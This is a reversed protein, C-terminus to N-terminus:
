RSSHGERMGGQTPLHWSWQLLRDNSTDESFITRHLDPGRLEPLHGPLASNSFCQYGQCWISCLVVVVLAAGKDLGRCLLSLESGQFGADVLEVLEAALNYTQASPLPLGAGQLSPPPLLWPLCPPSVMESTLLPQLLIRPFPLSRFAWQPGHAVTPTRMMCEAPSPM